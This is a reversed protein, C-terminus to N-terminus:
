KPSKTLRRRNRRVVKGYHRLSKRTIDPATAGLGGTVLQGQLTALAQVKEEVMRRSEAKARPGGLALTVTRLAMVNCVELSLFWTDIAIRPWPNHM